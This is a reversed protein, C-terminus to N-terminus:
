GADAIEQLSIRATARSPRDTRIALRYGRRLNLGTALFACALLVLPWPLALRLVTRAPTAVVRATAPLPPHVVRGGRTIRRSCLTAWVVGALGALAPLLVAHRHHGLGGVTAVALIAVLVRLTRRAVAAVAAVVSPRGPPPTPDPVDALACGLM